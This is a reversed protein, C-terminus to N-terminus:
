HLLFQCRPNEDSFILIGLSAGKAFCQLVFVTDSRQDAAGIHVTLRSGYITKWGYKEALSAFSALKQIFKCRMVM